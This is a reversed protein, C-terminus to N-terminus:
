HMSFLLDAVTRIEVVDSRAPVATQLQSYLHRLEQRLVQIGLERSNAFEDSILETSNEPKRGFVDLRDPLATQSM